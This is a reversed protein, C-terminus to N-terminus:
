KTDETSEAESLKWDEPDGGSCLCGFFNGDKYTMLECDRCLAHRRCNERLIMAASVLIKKLADKSM